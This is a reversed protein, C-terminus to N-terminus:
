IQTLVRAQGLVQALVQTHALVTSPIAHAQVQVPALSPLVLVLALHTLHLVQVEM